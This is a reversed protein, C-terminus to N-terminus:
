FIGLEDRADESMLDPSWPPTMSVEVRVTGAGELRALTQRTEELLQPAYPCAPTTMTMVVGIDSKGDKEEIAIGYILGLDVINVMLEPDRVGRLAAYVAGEQIAM